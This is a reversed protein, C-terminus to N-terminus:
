EIDFEEKGSELERLDFEMQDEAPQFAYDMEKHLHKKPVPLPNWIPEGPKLERPKEESVAEAATMKQKREVCCVSHLGIGAMILWNLLLVQLEKSPERLFWGYGNLFLFPLMWLVGYKGKESWYGFVAFVSCVIVPVLLVTTLGGNWATGGTLVLDKGWFELLEAATERLLMMRVLGYGTFGVLASVLYMTVASLRFSDLVANRIWLLGSIGALFVATFILNWSSLVGVLMGVLVLIPWSASNRDCLRVFLWATLLLLVSSVAFLLDGQWFQPLVAVGLLTVMATCRGMLYRLAPYLVVMGAVSFLLLLVNEMGADALFTQLKEQWNGTIGDTVYRFRLRFAAAFIVILAMLELWRGKKGPLQDRERRKKGFGLVSLLRSIGFLLLISGAAALPFYKGALMPYFQACLEGVASVFVACILLANIGWLLNSGKNRHYNM